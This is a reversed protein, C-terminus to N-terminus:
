PRAVGRITPRLFPLAKRMSGRTLSEFSFGAEAITAETRRTLRCGEALRSWIPDIRRHWALRDPRDEAAVHELFVFAGVPRLVRRIEALVAAPEAVSCLLLTGVVFDFSRDPFPLRDAAARELRERAGGGTAGTAGTAGAGSAGSAGGLARELRALMHPDADTLVLREVAQPYYPLNAGTGAGVELVSGATGALLERRWEALCARESRRMFPDYAAAFLWGM